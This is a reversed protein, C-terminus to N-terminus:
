PRHFLRARFYYAAISAAILLIFLVLYLGGNGEDEATKLEDLQEKVAGQPLAPTFTFVRAVRRNINMQINVAWGSAEFLLSMDRRRLKLWGLLASFGMVVAVAGIIALWGSLSTLMGFIGALVAGLGALAMGGGLILSNVDLGKGEPKPPEKKADEPVPPPVAPAKGEKADKITEDAMKQAEAVQKEVGESMSKEAAAQQSGVWDEVKKSVFQGVKRFPAVAAEWVSIPNEVIDAIVADWEKGDTDIFIGRKGVRLGGRVGGTVPAMVTYAAGAGEKELVQAYVLFILSESAVKKHAGADGVKTCFDLRRGDIVLSGMDVLARESPRYLASFNVFNNALELLWRQLLILKELQAVQELGPAAAKDTEALKGIAALEPGDLIAKVRDAGLADFPEAPKEKQWANWGDFTAKVQRWSARTLQATGHPLAKAIVKERLEEFRDRYVPNLGAAGLLLSGTAAPTALPSDTLYKEITAADKAKLARLEDEKLRLAEATSGEQKLLDCHWFYEEIKADLSAVLAAAAETGEGWVAAAAGKDRWAQWGKAKEVFRDVDAQAVGTLESADKSGGTTAIIDKVVQAVAADTVYDPPVVGDGNALTKRYSDRFARVNALSLETRPEVKLEFILQKAAARLKQAAENDALDSLTLVTSKERLKARRGLREYLFQRAAILQSVRIRGTGDPDLFALFAPDCHLDALPASTAAWRAPDLQDIRSLDGEDAVVFQHIGGFNRFRMPEAM